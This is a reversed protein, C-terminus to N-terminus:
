EQLNKQSYSTALPVLASVFLGSLLLGLGVWSPLEQKWESPAAIFWAAAANLSMGVLTAWTSLRKFVHRFNFTKM